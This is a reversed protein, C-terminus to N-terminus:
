RKLRQALETAREKMATCVAKADEVACEFIVDYGATTSRNMHDLSSPLNPKARTKVVMGEAKNWEWSYIETYLHQQIVRGKHLLINKGEKSLAHCDANGGKALFNKGATIPKRVILGEMTVQLKVKRKKMKADVTTGRLLQQVKESHNLEQLEVAKLDRREHSADLELGITDLVDPGIGDMATSLVTAAVTRRLLAMALALRQYCIGVKMELRRSEVNREALSCAMEKMQLAIVTSRSTKLVDEVRVGEPTIRHIKLDMGQRASWRQMTDFSFTEVHRMRSDFLIFGTEHLHLKLNRVRTGFGGRLDRSAYQIDFFQHTRQRLEREREWRSNDGGVIRPMAAPAHPHLASALAFDRSRLLQIAM